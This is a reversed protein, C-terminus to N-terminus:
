KQRDTSLCPANNYSLLKMFTNRWSLEDLNSKSFVHMKFREQPKVRFAKEIARKYASFTCSDSLFGNEGDTIYEELDSTPTTVVPTGIALSESVKTPFGSKSTLNDERAFTFYDSESVIRICKDNPILGKFLINSSVKAAHPFLDYYEEETLGCVILRAKDQPLTSIANITWDLKDKSGNLGPNGAYCFTVKESIEFRPLDSFRQDERYTLSPIVVTKCGKSSYYTSLYHSICIVTGITPRLKDVLIREERKKILRYIFSGSYHHFWDVVDAILPISERKCFRIIARTNPVGVNNIIIAKCTGKGKELILKSIYKFDKGSTVWQVVSKPYRLHYGVFRFGNKEVFPESLGQGGYDKDYGVLVPQFGLESVIKANARVRHALANKDPLQFRGWFLIYEEMGVGLKTFVIM